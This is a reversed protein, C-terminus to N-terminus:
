TTRTGPAAFTNNWADVLQMIYYRGQTDPVHLIMPESSLDLWALSYLTDLNPRAVPTAPTPLNTAHAFQNIPAFGLTGNPVPVNTMLRRTQDMLVLPYGYMYADVGMTPTAIQAHAPRPGAMLVLIALLPLAFRRM